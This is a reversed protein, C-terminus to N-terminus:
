SARPTPTPKPKRKKPPTFRPRPPTPRHGALRLAGEEGADSVVRDPLLGKGPVSSTTEALGAWAATGVTGAMLALVGAVRWRGRRRAAGHQDGRAGSNGQTRGKKAM